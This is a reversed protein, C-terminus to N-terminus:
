YLAWGAPGETLKPHCPAIRGNWREGFAPGSVVAGDEWLADAGLTLLFDAFPTAVTRLGKEGLRLCLDMGAASDMGPEFGGVEDILKKHTFLCHPAVTRVTRALKAWSFYGPSDPGEAPLGRFLSFLRGQADALHGLHHVIGGPLVLKGGVAGVGPQVLRSIIEALWDHSLPVLGKGLLGILSGRAAKVAANAREGFSLSRPLCLPRALRQGAAWRELKAKFASDAEEDYLLLIELKGYGAKAPLAEALAQGLLCDGGLDVILTTLPAPKPLAYRVRLYQTGPTVEVSAEVGKRQLHETVARVASNLAEPKTEIDAATSGAHARWHYLVKPIHILRDGDLEEVYRLLMDHDQSGPFGDRFGGIARLRDAQYVGLHNVMNQSLFLDWDWADNKFYPDCLAGSAFLKDEDSYFLLGDPRATIASAMEWLADPPLLDDQDMLAIWDHRAIGLATNTAAAIHGNSERFTVRIRPDSAALEELLPRVAPDPSADDAMCLEWHPWSQALLSEVAERVHAEKPNYVPMLVSFSITQEPPPLSRRKEREPRDQLERWITYSWNDHLSAANQSTMRRMREMFPRYDTQRCADATALWQRFQDALQTLALDESWQLMSKATRVYREFAFCYQFLFNLAYSVRQPNNQGRTSNLVAFLNDPIPCLQTGSLLVSEAERTQGAQNLLETLRAYGAHWLPYRGIMACLAPIDEAALLAELRKEQEEPLSPIMAQMPTVRLALGDQRLHVHWDPVLLRLTTDWLRASNEQERAHRGPTQSTLHYMRSGPNVTMRWGDAWLRACLDVDEFGNVYAEDFGGHKLLLTRPMLMCAATIVQFFRRKKALESDAPIGEYLHAVNYTPSVSVGLHQVTDGLPGTAPYMLVPGTAAIDPYNRFDQLLPEYWGPLAITDNNLFLVYEGRGIKAGLNSAPGFNLNTESRHYRFLEGFLAQGLAPCAERTADSSANDVVIIECSNGALTAALSRLCNETLEWKNYVPIVVSTHPSQGANRATM